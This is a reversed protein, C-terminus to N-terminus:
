VPARPRMWVLCRQADLGPVTLQEVHFVEIEPPLAAIEDDPVRGKMALWIGGPALHCRTLRTFDGLSAFARSTIVDFPPAKLQEIRSHEARLNTLPLAGAVQRVFAMKKGVADVCTVQWEPLLAAIVVGPLGGGSGVDLLRGGTAHRRLPEVVALCDSLHQLRMAERDRVATLNYTANWRQLLDLYRALAAGQGATVDLGLPACLRQIEDDNLAAAV